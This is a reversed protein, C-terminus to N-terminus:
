RKGLGAVAAPTVAVQKRVARSACLAGTGAVGM